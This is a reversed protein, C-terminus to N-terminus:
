KPTQVRGGKATLLKMAPDNDSRLRVKESRVGALFDATHRIMLANPSKVRM